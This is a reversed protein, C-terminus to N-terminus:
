RVLKALPVFITYGQDVNPFPGIKQDDEFSFREATGTEPIPINVSLGVNATNPANNVPKGIYGGGSYVLYDWENMTVLPKRSDITGDNNIDKSLHQNDPKTTLNCDWNVSSFLDNIEGQLFVGNSGCTFRSGLQILQKIKTSKKNAHLGITENLNSEDLPPLDQSNFRSYDLKGLHLIGSFGASRIGRSLFSYNMVSLHNPKFKLDDIDKAGGESNLQVGGHGLGLNHGLEHMFSGSRALDLGKNIHNANLNDEWDRMGIAFYNSGVRSSPSIGLPAFIAFKFEMRIEDAFLCYHAIPLYKAPFNENVIPILESYIDQDSGGIKGLVSNDITEPIQKGWIFHLHIGPVGDPNPVPANNFAQVVDNLNKPKHNHLNNGLWDIYVFIDKHNKKAGMGPLNVGNYGSEEWADPLSDKDLDADINTGLSLSFDDIVHNNSSFGTAASFGVGAFSYDASAIQYDIVLGNDISVLVRGNDFQVLATHWINDETRGDNIYNLHNGVNNHILAIHNASPDDINDIQPNLWNDFEIGYGAISSTGNNQFGLYGGSGPITYASEDKYFMFVFGDGGSGGGAKYKFQATWSKSSLGYNAFMAVSKGGNARTLYLEGNNADWAAENTTDTNHGRHIRWQGNTNPDSSFDDSFVVGGQQAYVTQSSHNTTSPYIILLAIGVLILFGHRTSPMRM